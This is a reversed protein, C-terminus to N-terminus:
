QALIDTKGDVREIPTHPEEHPLAAAIFMMLLLGAAFYAVHRLYHGTGHARELSHPILDHFVVILYSGVALGMLPIELWEFADLLFYSGFTGILITSSAIFNYALASRVSLGAERLVFFESIEQLMEHVVISVTSAIGILPSAAFSVVIVAGDGINHIADSLLVRSADIRSHSHDNKDHHHHFSPLYRFAVLVAVAGIAIWPVGASLTGAHEVIEQSLNFAIILLVGSAFSVFYHLNREIMKGAGKWTVLKGSLSVLMVLLSAALASALM